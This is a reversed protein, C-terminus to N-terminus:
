HKIEKNKKLADDIEHEAQKIGLMFGCELATKIAKYINGKAIDHIMDLDSATYFGKHHTDQWLKYNDLAKEVRAM